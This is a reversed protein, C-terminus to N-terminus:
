ENQKKPFLILYYTEVELYSNVTGKENLNFNAKKIKLFRGSRELYSILEQIKTFDIEKFDIRFKIPSIPLIYNSVLYKEESSLNFNVGPFTGLNLIKYGNILYALVEETKAERPLWTELTEKYPILKSVNSQKSLENVIREIELLDKEQNQLRNIEKALSITQNYVPIINKFFFYAILSLLIVPILNIFIRM